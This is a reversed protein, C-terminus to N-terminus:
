KPEQEIIRSFVLRTKFGIGKRTFVFQTGIKIDKQDLFRSLASFQKNSLMFVYLSNKEMQFLKDYATQQKKDNKIIGEIETKDIIGFDILRVDRIQWKKVDFYKVKKYKPAKISELIIYYRIGNKIILKMQKQKKASKKILKTYKESM